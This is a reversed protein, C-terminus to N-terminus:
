DAMSNVFRPPSCQITVLPALSRTPEPMRFYRRCYRCMAKLEGQWMVGKAAQRGAARPLGGALLSADPLAAIRPQVLGKANQVPAPVILSVAFSPPM